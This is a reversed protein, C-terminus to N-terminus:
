ILIILQPIEFPQSASLPINLMRLWWPFVFWFSRLNWRLSIVIALIWFDHLLFHQCPHLSLLVSRWKQHFELRTFSSQFDIQCNRLSSYITRGSSSWIGRSIIYGFPAGAYLFSVHEVIKIATYNTIVLMHFCGLYGEVYSHVCFIHYM